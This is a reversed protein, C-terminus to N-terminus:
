DVPTLNEYVLSHKEDLQKDIHAHGAYWHKYEVKEEIFLQNNNVYAEAQNSGVNHGALMGLSLLLVGAIKTGKRM